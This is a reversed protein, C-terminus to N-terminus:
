VQSTAADDNYGPPPPSGMNPDVFPAGSHFPYAPAGHPDEFAPPAQGPHMLPPLVAMPVAFAPGPPVLPPTKGRPTVTVPTAARMVLASPAIANLNAVPIKRRVFEAVVIFCAFSIFTEFCSSVALFGDSCFANLFSQYIGNVVACSTQKLMGTEYEGDNNSDTGIRERLQTVHARMNTLVASIGSCQANGSCGPQSDVSTQASTLTNDISTFSTQVSAVESAYPFVLPESNCKLYYLAVSDTISLLSIANSTPAICYDAMGASGAYLVAAVIWAILIVLVTLIALVLSVIRCLLYRRPQCGKSFYSDALSFYLALLACVLLVALAATVVMSRQKDITNVNDAIKSRLSNVDLSNISNVILDAKADINTCASQISSKDSSSVYTGSPDLATLDAIDAILLQTTAKIAVISSVTDSKWKIAIDVLDVVSQFATSQSANSKFGYFVMVACGVTLAISFLTYFLRWNDPGDQKIAPRRCGCCKCCRCVSWFIFILFCIFGVVLMVAPRIAVNQAYSANLELKYHHYEKVKSSPSYASSSVACCASILSALVVVVSLRLVNGEVM